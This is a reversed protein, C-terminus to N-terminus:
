FTERDFFFGTGTSGRFDYFGPDQKQLLAALAAADIGLDKLVGDAVASYPRPSDILFTGGNLLQVRGDLDFENRKAHGGFDDHNDLLLVRAQPVAARYFHAAALGSMGAGVVVGQVFDRRTIARHMGLERDATGNRRNRAM